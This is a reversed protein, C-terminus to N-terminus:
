VRIFPISNVLPHFSLFGSNHSTSIGWCVMRYKFKQLTKSGGVQSFGLAGHSFADCFSADSDQYYKTSAVSMISVISLLTTDVELLPINRHLLNCPLDLGCLFHLVYKILIHFCHLPDPLSFLLSLAIDHAWISKVAAEDCKIVGLDWECIFASVRLILSTSRKDRRIPKCGVRLKMLDFASSPM